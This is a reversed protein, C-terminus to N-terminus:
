PFVAGARGVDRSRPRRRPPPRVAAATPLKFAVGSAIWQGSTQTWAVSVAGAPTQDLKDETSNGDTATRSTFGSGVTATNAVSTGGFIMDHDAVSTVSVAPAASNGSANNPGESSSATALGAYEHIDIVRYTVSVSVTMTVTPTAAAMNEKIFLQSRRAQTANTALTSAIATWAGNTPDSVTCTATASGWIAYCVGLNGAGNAAGYAQGLTTAPTTAVSGAPTQAQTAAM